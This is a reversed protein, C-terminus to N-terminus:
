GKQVLVGSCFTDSTLTLSGTGSVNYFFEIYDTSGNLYVAASDAAIVATGSYPGIISRSVVVGNKRIEIGGWVLASSSTFGASANVQYWGAVTPQFKSGNFFGGDNAVVTFPIVSAGTAAGSGPFTGNFGIKNQPFSVRGAADVTMIDQGSERSLKMTGNDASADLVFNNAPTVSLGLRHKISRIISM